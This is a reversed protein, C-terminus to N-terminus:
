PRRARRMRTETTATAHTLDLIRDRQSDRYTQGVTPGDFADLWPMQTEVAEYGREPKRPLPAQGDISGLRPLNEQSTRIAGELRLSVMGGVISLITSRLAAVEVCSEPYPDSFARM